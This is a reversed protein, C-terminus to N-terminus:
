HFITQERVWNVESSCRQENIPSENYHKISAMTQTQDISGPKKKIAKAFFKNWGLLGYIM